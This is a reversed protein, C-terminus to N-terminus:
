EHSSEEIIILLEGGSSTHHLSPHISYSLIRMQRNKDTYRSKGHVPEKLAQVTSFDRLLGTDRLGPISHVNMGVIDPHTRGFLEAACHNIGTIEGGPLCTILGVPKQLFIGTYEQQEQDSTHTDERRTESAIDRGVVITGMLHGNRAFFPVQTIHLEATRGQTAISKQTRFPAGSNRTNEQSEESTGEKVVSDSHIHTTHLGFVDAENKGIVSGPDSLRSVRALTAKNAFIVRDQDDKAWLLDPVTDCLQQMMSYMSAYREKESILESCIEDQHIASGIISAAAQLADIEVVAWERKSLCDCFWIMGRIERDAIIPFAALSRIEDCHLVNQARDSFVCTSGVVYEGDFITDEGSFLTGSPFVCNEPVRINGNRNWGMSCDFTREGDKSNELRFVLVRDVETALGFLTISEALAKSFSEGGLFLTAVLSVAELIADRRKLSLRASRKSIAYDVKHNLEAFLSKADGGKQIFFDAGTNIAEIIVTERGRGSFLIFPIEPDFSRIERLLDLGNMSPMEYDSIVCAYPYTRLLLLAEEATHVVDVKFRGERELCLRTVDCIMPEDDVHLVRMASSVSEGAGTM